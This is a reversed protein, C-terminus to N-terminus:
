FPIEDDIANSKAREDRSQAPTGYDDPSDGRPGGESKQLSVLVSGFNALVVETTYHTVGDKEWRRTKQKGEVYVKHGKKLYKEAFEVLPESFIKVRHWDTVEKREGTERDKWSEGTAISLECFKGNQGTIIKPDDGLNGVLIVKNVSGAM